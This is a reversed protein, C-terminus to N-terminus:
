SRGSHGRQLRAAIVGLLDPRCSEVPLIVVRKNEDYFVFWFKTLKWVGTVDSWKVLTTHGNSEILFDLNRISIVDRHNVLAFFRSRNRVYTLLSIAACPLWLLMPILYVWALSYHQALGALFGQLFILGLFIGVILFLNSNRHKRLFFVRGASRAMSLSWEFRIDGFVIEPPKNLCM